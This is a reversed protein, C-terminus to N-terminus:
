QVGGRGPAMVPVAEADDEDVRIQGEGLVRDSRARLVEAGVVLITSVVLVLVAVAPIQPLQRPLRLQSYVYLPFTTTSGALFSALVIEDFSIVYVILFASVVAPMLLPFTIAWFTTWGNAGLDRSAEEIAEPIRELRPTLTLIAFPLAIIVHAIILTLSGFEIPLGIPELLYVNVYNFLILMATGLVVLPVVLPALMMGSVMGKGPFRRRQLVISAPIALITTIVSAVLAIWASTTLADLLQRNSFLESYWRTTFGQWPFSVIDRDNFSFIGLVIIPAYLFVVLLWFGLWLLGRGSRSAAMNM